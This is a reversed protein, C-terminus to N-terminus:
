MLDMLFLPLSENWIKTKKMMRIGTVLHREEDEDDDEDIEKESTMQVLEDVYGFQGTLGIGKLQDDGQPNTHCHSSDVDEIM